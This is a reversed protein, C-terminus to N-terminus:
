GAGQDRPVKVIRGQTPDYAYEFDYVPADYRQPPTPNGTPARFSRYGRVDGSGYNRRIYDREREDREIALRYAEETADAEGSAMLGQGLGGIVHGALGQNRELWGGSSFLGGGTTAPARSIPATASAYPSFGGGAAPHGVGGARGTIGAATAGGTMTTNGGGGYIASGPLPSTTVPANPDMIGPGRVPEFGAGQVRGTLDIPQGAQAQEMGIGSFPDYPLGAAGMLGGTATGGLAGYGAGKFFDGGTVASFAGGLVAGYGAQTLAGSLTNTLVEGAGLKGVLNSVAGGWGGATGPVGLAAGVTFVLAGVGLAIPLVKKAVKAVKKFVKKVGKAVGSM